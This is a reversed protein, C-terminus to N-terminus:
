RTHARGATIRTDQFVRPSDGHPYLQPQPTRGGSQIVSMDMTGVVTLVLHSIPSLSLSLSRSVLLHRLCGLLCQLRVTAAQPALHSGYWRSRPLGGAQPQVCVSESVFFGGAFPALFSLGFTYGERKVREIEPSVYGGTRWTERDIHDSPAGGDRFMSQLQGEHFAEWQEHWIPLHSRPWVTFGGSM